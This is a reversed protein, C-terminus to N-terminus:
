IIIFYTLTISKYDSDITAPLQQCRVSIDRHAGDM